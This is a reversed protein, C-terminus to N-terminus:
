ILPLEKNQGKYYMYVESPQLIPFPLHQAREIAMIITCELQKWAGLDGEM